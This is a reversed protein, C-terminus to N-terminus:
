GIAARALSERGVRQLARLYDVHAAWKHECVLPAALSVTDAHADLLEHVLQHLQDEDPRPSSAAHARARDEIVIPHMYRHEQM